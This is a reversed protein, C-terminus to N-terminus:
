KLATAECFPILSTSISGLGAHYPRDYSWGDTRFRTMERALAYDSRAGIGYERLSKSLDDCTQRTRCYILGSVASPRQNKDQRLGRRKYVDGLWTILNKFRDFSDNTYRIEYHLNNGETQTDTSAQNSYSIPLFTRSTSLLFVKLSPPFDLIKSIDARVRETATATVAM